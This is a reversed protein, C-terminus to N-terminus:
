TFTHCFRGARCQDHNISGFFTVHKSETNTKRRKTDMKKYLIISHTHTRSHSIHSVDVAIENRIQIETFTKNQQTMWLFLRPDTLAHM